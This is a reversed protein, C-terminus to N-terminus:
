PLEARGQCTARGEPCCARPRGGSCDSWGPPFRCRQAGEGSTETGRQHDGGPPLHGCPCPRLVEPLTRGRPSRERQEKESHRSAGRWDIGGSGCPKHGTGGRPWLKRWVQGEALLGQEEESLKCGMAQRERLRSLVAPHALRQCWAAQAM